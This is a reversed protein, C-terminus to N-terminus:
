SDVGNVRRGGHEGVRPVAVADDARARRLSTQRTLAAMHPTLM